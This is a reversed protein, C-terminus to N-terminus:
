LGKIIPMKIVDGNSNERIFVSEYDGDGDEYFVSNRYNYPAEKPSVTQSDLHKLAYWQEKLYKFQPASLYIAYGFIGIMIATLWCSM